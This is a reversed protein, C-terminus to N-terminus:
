PESLLDLMQQHVRGNSALVEGSFIDLPGGRLNTVCGGAESVLLVGAASDWAKLDLEWYGDARGAALYSLALASSGMRRLSQTREAFRGWWRLHKQMLGEDYPFGTVLLSERLSETISVELRKDDLWAGEGLEAVFLENHIPNYVVGVLPERGRYLAISVGFFPFGHAFNTTGDIPDIIWQYHSNQHPAVSAEETLISHDPCQKQIVKVIIEEARRDFETILDRFGSKLQFRHNQGFNERLLAGAERAAAIALSRFSKSM